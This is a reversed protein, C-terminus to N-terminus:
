RQVFPPNASALIAAIANTQLTIRTMNLPYPVTVTFSGWTDPIATEQSGSINALNCQLTVTTDEIVFNTLRVNIANATFQGVNGVVYDQILIRM